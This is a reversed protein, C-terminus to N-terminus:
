YHAKLELFSEEVHIEPWVHFNDCPPFINCLPKITLLDGLWYSFNLLEFEQYNHYQRFIEINHHSLCIDFSGLM